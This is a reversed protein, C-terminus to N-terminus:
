EFLVSHYIAWVSESVIIAKIRNIALIAVMNHLVVKHISHCSNNLGLLRLHHRGKIVRLVKCLRVQFAQHLVPCVLQRIVVKTWVFPHPHLHAVITIPNLIIDQIM